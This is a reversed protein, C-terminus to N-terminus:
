RKKHHKHVYVAGGVALLLVAVGLVISPVHANAVKKGYISVGANDIANELNSLKLKIARLEDKLSKEIQSIQQSM